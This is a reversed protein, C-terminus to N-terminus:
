ALFEPTSDSDVDARVTVDDSEATSELRDVASEVRIDARPESTADNDVANNLASEVSVAASKVSDVPSEM